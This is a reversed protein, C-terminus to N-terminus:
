GNGIRARSTGTQSMLPNTWKIKNATLDFIFSGEIETSKKGYRDLKVINDKVLYV